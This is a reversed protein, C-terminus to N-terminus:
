QNQSVESIDRESETETLEDSLTFDSEPQEMTAPEETKPWEKIGILSIAHRFDKENHDPFSGLKLFGSEKKALNPQCQRFHNASLNNARAIHGCNKCVKWLRRIFHVYTLSELIM